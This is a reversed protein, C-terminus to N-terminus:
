FGAQRDTEMCAKGYTQATSNESKQIRVISLYVLLIYKEKKRLNTFVELAKGFEKQLVLKQGISFNM